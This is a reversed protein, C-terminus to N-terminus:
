RSSRQGCLPGHSSHEACGTFASQSAPLTRHVQPFAPDLASTQDLALLHEPALRVDLSAINDNLQLVTSAGLILSSIGPQAGAWNQFPNPGSLFGAALPSWPTIGLGCGRAAAVHEREISREVLSYELQLAIPGPM